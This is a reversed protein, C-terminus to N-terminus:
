SKYNYEYKECLTSLWKNLLSNGYTSGDNKMGMVKECWELAEIITPASFYNDMESSFFIENYNLKKGFNLSHKRNRKLFADTWYAITRQDYGLVYLCKAQKLTVVENPSEM